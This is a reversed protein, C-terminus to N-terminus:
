AIYNSFHKYAWTNKFSKLKLLKLRFKMQIQISTKFVGDWNINLIAIGLLADAYKIKDKVERNLSLYISLYISLHISICFYIYTYICIFEYIYYTHFIYYM